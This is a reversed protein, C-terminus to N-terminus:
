YQTPNMELNGRGLIPVPLYYTNLLYKHFSQGKEGM